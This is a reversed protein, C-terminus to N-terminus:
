AAHALELKHPATASTLPELLVRQACRAAWEPRRTAIVITCPPESLLAALPADAFADGELLDDFDDILLVAPTDVLARALALRARLLRPL